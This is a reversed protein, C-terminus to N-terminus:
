AGSSPEDQVFPVHEDALESPTCGALETVERVLHAHDAYGCAAAVQSITIFPPVSTLMEKTREFRIVRGARKPSLGFESRFRRTLHQRSYGTEAALEAVPVSGSSAVLWRWCGELEATMPAHVALRSLVDDCVAFRDPWGAAVQLRDWLETGVSGVVDAFEVSLDWLERAPMGFLRRSGLPTLEIAVGEQDGPDVILAPSDQLGSLVCRYSDPRQAPDTQAVVDIPSGISVVFTMHRSPLGRHVGPEFGSLRYGVYADVFARLGPAPAATVWDSSPSTLM